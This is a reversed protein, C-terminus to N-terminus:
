LQQCSEAVPVTTTSSMALHLASTYSNLILSRLISLWLIPSQKKSKLWDLRFTRIVQTINNKNEEGEVDGTYPVM